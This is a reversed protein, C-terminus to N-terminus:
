VAHLKHLIASPSIVALQKLKNWAHAAHVIQIDSDPSITAIGAVILGEKVHVNLILIACTFIDM